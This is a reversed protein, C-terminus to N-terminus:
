GQRAMRQRIPDNDCYVRWEALKGDQVFARFATPTTWHNGPELKGHPAFTGQAEGLMVVVPGNCMTEEIAVTYDPVIEFYKTWGRRLTERGEHLNGLSDIFRHQETLLDAIADVDQRNIARIFAQVVSEALENM